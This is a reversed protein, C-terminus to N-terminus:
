FYVMLKCATKLVFYINYVLIIVDRKTTAITRRGKSFSLAIALGPM